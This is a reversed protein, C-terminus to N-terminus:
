FVTLLTELRNAAEKFALAKRPGAGSGGSGSIMECGFREMAAALLVDDFLMPLLGLCGMRGLAILVSADAVVRM